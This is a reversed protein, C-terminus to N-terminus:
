AVDNEGTPDVPLLLLHDLVQTGFVLHELLLQALISHQEVVVLTPPQGDIGDVESWDLPETLPAPLGGPSNRRFVVEDFGVARATGSVYIANPPCNLALHETASQQFLDAREERGVRDQTPM